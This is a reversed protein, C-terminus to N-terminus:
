FTYDVGVFPTLPSTLGTKTLPLAANAAVVWTDGVNWKMGPVLSILNAAATGPLLRLTNV